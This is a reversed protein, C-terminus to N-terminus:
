LSVEVTALRRGRNRASFSLSVPRRETAFGWSGLFAEDPALGRRRLEAEREGGGIAVGFLELTGRFEDRPAMVAGVRDFVITLAIILRTAHHELLVIGLEDLVHFRNTGRARGKAIRPLETRPTVSRQEAFWELPVPEVLRIGDFAAGARDIAM